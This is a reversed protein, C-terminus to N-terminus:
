DIQLIIAEGLPDVQRLWKASLHMTEVPVLRRFRQTHLLQKGQRVTITAGDIFQTTRFAIKRPQNDENPLIRNPLVWLLPPAVQLPISQRPWSSGQLFDAMAKAARRGEIASTSATEAGRLLNGAAFIGKQSTRYRADIQPGLTGADIVINGKRAVEHEPIWDGTFVITDCAITHPKGSPIHTMEIGHVRKRGLIRQIRMNTYIPTRHLIDAFLWKGPTYPFYMQHQPYKTVFAAIDLGAKRLTLFASLSVGEAGVIVARHGVPLHYEDVFRQLEGTTFVGRPRYGPVLRASRPRERVGTALLITQAEIIGTGGPSTYTLANESDWGTITTETRIDVGNIEALHTYHRAYTPGSYIRQLDFIGFGTHHCLRPMGGAQPERDVVTVNEVGLRKLTIAASLGAPGAGIILANTKYHIM